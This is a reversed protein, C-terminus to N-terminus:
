KQPLSIQPSKNAFSFTLNLVQDDLTTNGEEGPYVYGQYSTSIENIDVITNDGRNGAVQAQHRVKAPSAASPQGHNETTVPSTTGCM